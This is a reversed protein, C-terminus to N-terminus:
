YGQMRTELAALAALAAEDDAEIVLVKNIQWRATNLDGEAAAARAFALLKEKIRDIGALATENQPELRLVKRFLALANDFRPAMLRDRKLHEEALVLWHPIAASETEAEDLQLLGVTPQSTGSQAATGTSPRPVVRAFVFGEQGTTTQLRYWKSGLLHGALVAHDGKKLIAVLRSRVTPRERVRVDTLMERTDTPRAPDTQAPAAAVNSPVEAIISTPPQEASALEPALEAEDTIADDGTTVAEADPDAAAPSTSVNLDSEVATSPPDGAPAERMEPEAPRNINGSTKSAVSDQQEANPKGVPGIHPVAEPSKPNAGQFYRGAVSSLFQQVGLPQQDHWVWALTAAVALGATLAWYGWRTSRRGVGDASEVAHDAIETAGSAFAGTLGEGESVATELREVPQQRADLRTPQEIPSAADQGARSFERQGRDIRSVEVPGLTAFSADDEDAKEGVDEEDSSAHPGGTGKESLMMVSAAAEVMQPTIETREDGEPSFAALGCLYRITAPMGGSYAFIRDISAPSFFTAPCGASRLRHHIFSAVETRDMPPLRFRFMSGVLPAFMKDALRQELSAHGALVTTIPSWGQEGPASLDLLAMLMEDSMSQAEDALLCTVRGTELQGLFEKLMGMKQASGKSGDQELGIQDLCLSLLTDLTPAPTPLFVTRAGAVQLEVNLRNLLATKGAGAESTVLLPGQGSSIRAVLQEVGTEQSSRVYYSQTDFQSSFPDRQCGIGRWWSM